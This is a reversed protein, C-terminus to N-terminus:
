RNSRKLARKSPEQSEVRQVNSASRIARVVEWANSRPDADASLLRFHEFRRQHVNANKHVTAMAANKILRGKCLMCGYVTPDLSILYIPDKLAEAVSMPPEDDINDDESTTDGKQDRDEDIGPNSDDSQANEQESGSDSEDSDTDNLGMIEKTDEDLGLEEEEEQRKRKREMRKFM